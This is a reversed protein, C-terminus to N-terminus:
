IKVNGNGNGSPHVKRPIVITLETGRGSNSKVSMAGGVRDMREKMGILGYHGTPLSSVIAPDFGAGDDQVTVTCSTENFDIGVQVRNPRAHRLANHIAERTVMLLEHVTSQELYFPKGNVNCEVPIGFEQSLRGTMSDLLPGVDTLAEPALRLDFVAQRAEDVTSRIQGRAINLLNQRADAETEGLSSHAELLASVSVCGQILTDHMERALRNREKLVAQFRAHVQSLRFQYVSWVLGAAALLCLTLFWVTRYFHPEQVIELSSEVIKAPNNMEYAAVRFQYTRPPLNTYYAAHSASGESWDKDFGQLMYRFRVREQSRLLVVGYHLELKAASPGLRIPRGSPIQLGDVSVQDIVVPMFDSFPPQTVSVRVPGKSSPFWVEGQNTLIGAPKEGGCMQITELGDSVGYLTVPVRRGPNEAISELQRRDIV